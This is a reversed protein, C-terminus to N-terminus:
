REAEDVKGNTPNLLAIDPTQGTIRAYDIQLRVSRLITGVSGSVANAIAPTTEGTPLDRIQRWVMAQMADLTPRENDPEIRTPNRESKDM